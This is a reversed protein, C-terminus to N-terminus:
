NAKNSDLLDLNRMAYGQMIRSIDREVTVSELTADIMNTLEGRAISKALEYQALKITAAAVQMAWAPCQNELTKLLAKAAVETAEQCTGCNCMQEIGDIMEKSVADIIPNM